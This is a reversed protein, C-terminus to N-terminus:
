YAGLYRPPLGLSPNPRVSGTALIAGDPAVSLVRVSGGDLEADALLCLGLGPACRVDGLSFATVRSEALPEASREGRSLDLQWLRDPAALSSGDAAFRGYTGLLLLEASAYALAGIQEGGLERASFRQTEVPEGDLSVIAVGADPFGAAADQGFAGSCALALEDGGPSVALGLCNALGELRLVHEIGDTRPDVSVLRADVFESFDPTSPAALVRVSGGAFVARAPRPLFRADEGEIAPWLDVRGSISPARPDIILLDSGADFPERGPASNHEFRPVLAKGEDIPVYDQPNASFGTGVNLQARVSASALDVWTLVSAPLRDILVVEDGALTSTPLVVDGSLASSLGTTASSSGIFLPSAVEGGAGLLSIATSQYDTGLVVFGRAAGASAGGEVPTAPLVVGTTTVDRSEVGCGSALALATMAFPLARRLRPASTLPFVALTM